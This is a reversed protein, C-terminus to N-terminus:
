SFGYSKKQQMVNEIERLSEELARVEDFRKAARAQAIFSILQDRQIVFPDDEDDVCGSVEKDTDCIWGGGQMERGRGGEEKTNPKIGKSIGRITEMSFLRDIDSTFKDFGSSFKDVTFDAAMKDFVTKEEAAAAAEAEHKANLIRQEERQREIEKLREQAAREQEEKLEVLQQQTPLSPLTLLNEQLYNSAYVRIGRALKQATPSPQSASKNM